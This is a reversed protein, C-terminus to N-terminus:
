IKEITVACYKLEPQKSHNDYVPNCVINALSNKAGSIVEGYHMNMYVTGPLVRDKISVICRVRGRRSIVDVEDGDIIVLYEADDPHIEVLNDKSFGENKDTRGTRTGTNFHHEMRGTILAFPYEVDTTEAPEKYDRALLAARGNPRPFRRDM